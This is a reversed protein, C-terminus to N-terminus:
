HLDLINNFYECYTFEGVVMGDNPSIKNSCIGVDWFHYGGNTEIYYACNRCKRDDTASKMKTKWRDYCEKSHKALLEEQKTLLEVTCSSSEIWKCKAGFM